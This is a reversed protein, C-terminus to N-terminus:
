KDEGQYEANMVKVLLVDTTTEQPPDTSCLVFRQPEELRLYCLIITILASAQSETLELRRM